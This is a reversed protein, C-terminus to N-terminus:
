ALSIQLVKIIDSLELMYNSRKRLDYCCHKVLANLTKASIAGSFRIIADPLNQLYRMFKMLSLIRQTKNQVTHFLPVFFRQYFLCLMSFRALLLVRLQNSGVAHCKHFCMNSKWTKFITEIRWRLGYLRAVLLPTFAPDLLNTIYISWGMLALLEASPNHGKNEKKAKMRRLNAVEDPVRFALIRFPVTPLGPFYVVQDISGKERLLSLLEIPEKAEPSDLLLTKHKYRQIFYSGERYQSFFSEVSFYGRDRLLLDNLLTHTEPAVTMDTRSYPDISFHLFTGSMLDYVCQIRAHVRKAHANAVGSFEDFLKRPLSILTSDQILIRSFPLNPNLDFLTQPSATQHLFKEFVQQFFRLTREDMRQAYAQRSADSPTHLELSAALDNFSVSGKMSLICTHIFFDFPDIKGSNRRSFGTQKAISRILEPSIGCKQLAFLFSDPTSRTM